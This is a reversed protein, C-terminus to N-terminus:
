RVAQFKRSPPTNFNKNTWNDLAKRHYIYHKGSRIGPLGGERTLKLVNKYSIKGGFYDKSVEEATLFEPINTNTAETSLTNNQKLNM